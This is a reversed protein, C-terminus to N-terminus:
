YRWDRADMWPRSNECRESMGKRRLRRAKVGDGEDVM